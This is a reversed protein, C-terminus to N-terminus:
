YFSFAKITLVCLFSSFNSMANTFYVIEFLRLWKQSWAGNKFFDVASKIKLFKSHCNPKKRFATKQAYSKNLFLYWLNLFQKLFRSIYVFISIITMKSYFSYKKAFNYHKDTRSSVTLGTCTKWNVSKLNDYIIFILIMNSNLLCYM